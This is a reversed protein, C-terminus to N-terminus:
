IEKKDEDKADEGSQSSNSLKHQSNDEDADTEMDSYHTASEGPRLLKGVFYYKESFQIEWEKLREMEDTSLDSLDDYDDKLCSADLSFTALGRSADRGALASYPGDKGYFDKGRNTVDFIKGNVAILIRGDTDSGDFKKLDALTMDQKKLMPVLKRSPLSAKSPSSRQFIIKCLLFACVGLLFLNLPSTFIDEALTKSLSVIRDM